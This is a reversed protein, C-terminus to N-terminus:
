ELFDHLIPFVTGTVVFNKQQRVSACSQDVGIVHLLPSCSVLEVTAAPAATSRVELDDSIKCGIVVATDNM